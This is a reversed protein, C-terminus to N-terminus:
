SEGRISARGHSACVRLREVVLTAQQSDNGASHKGELGKRLDRVGLAETLTDMFQPCEVNQKSSEGGVLLARGFPKEAHGDVPGRFAV